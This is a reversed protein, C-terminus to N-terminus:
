KAAATATVNDLGMWARMANIIAADRHVRTYTKDYGASAQLGLESV